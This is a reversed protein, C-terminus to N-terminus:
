EYKYWDEKQKVLFKIERKLVRWMFELKVM